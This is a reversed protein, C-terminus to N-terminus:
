PLHQGPVVGCQPVDCDDWRESNADNLYCWTGNYNDKFIRCYNSAATKDDNDSMYENNRDYMATKVQPSNLIWPQCQVGATSVSVTGAYVPGWTPHTTWCTTALSVPFFFILYVKCEYLSSRLVLTTCSLLFQM